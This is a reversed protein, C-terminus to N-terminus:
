WKGDWGWIGKNRVSFTEYQSALREAACSLRGASGDRWSGIWCDLVNKGRQSYCILTWKALFPLLLFAFAFISNTELSLAFMKKAVLFTKFFFLLQPNQLTPPKILVLVLFLSHCKFRLKTPFFHKWKLGLSGRRFNYHGWCWCFFFFCNTWKIYHSLWFNQWITKAVLRNKQLRKGLLVPLICEM